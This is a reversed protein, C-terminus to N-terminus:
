AADPLDLDRPSFLDTLSRAWSLQEAAEV